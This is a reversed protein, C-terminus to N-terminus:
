ATLREAELYLPLRFTVVEAAEAFTLDHAKAILDMLGAIDGERTLMADSCAEPFHRGAEAVFAQWSTVVTM